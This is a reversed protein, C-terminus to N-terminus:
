NGYYDRYFSDKFDGLCDEAIAERVKEMLKVLFWINHYTCLRQGFMEKAKLLHRVYAASYNRCAYCDCEPDMPGFDEEFCKDRIIKKGHWTM